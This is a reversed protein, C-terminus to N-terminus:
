KIIWSHLSQESEIYMENNWDQCLKELLRQPLGSKIIVHAVIPAFEIENLKHQIKTWLEPNNKQLYDLLRIEATAHFHSSNYSPNRNYEAVGLKYNSVVLDIFVEEFKDSLKDKPKM